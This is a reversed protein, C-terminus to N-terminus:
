APTSTRASRDKVIGLRHRERFAAFAAEQVPSYSKTAEDRPMVVKMVSDGQTDYFQVTHIPRGDMHGRKDVSFASSIGAPRLHLDLTATEVNLFPGSRSIGGFEGYSELTAGRNTVVVQCRGWAALDALIPELRVPDLADAVEGELARIVDAEPVGLERAALLTLAAPRRAFYQRVREKLELAPDGMGADYVMKVGVPATIM